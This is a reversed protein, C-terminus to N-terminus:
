DGQKAHKRDNARRKEIIAKLETLGEGTENLTKRIDKSGGTIECEEIIHRLDLMFYIYIYIYVYIVSLFCRVRYLTREKPSKLQLVM